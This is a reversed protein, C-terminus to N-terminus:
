QSVEMCKRPVSNTLDYFIIAEDFNLLEKTNGFLRDTIQERHANLRDACRYLSSLSLPELRLLELISSDNIMWDHTHRESGPSLMRGVILVCALKVQKESFELEYLLEPIRLLKLAQLALREGGITRSGPHSIEEPITLHRQNPNYHIDYGKDLLRKVTDNVWKEFSQDQFPLGWEGKLRAEVQRTFETWKAKPLDFDPGLNLLTINRPNGNIRRSQVLAFGRGKQGNKRRHTQSRIFM